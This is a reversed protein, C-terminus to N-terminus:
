EHMKSEQQQIYRRRLREARRCDKCTGGGNSYTHPIELEGTLMEQFVRVDALWPHDRVIEVTTGHVAVIEYTEGDIEIQQGSYLNSALTTITSSSNPESM